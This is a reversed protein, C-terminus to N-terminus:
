ATTGVDILELGAKALMRETTALSYYELHEPCVTDYATLRLMSPMYTQEFHWVRDPASM